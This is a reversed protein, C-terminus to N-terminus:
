FSISTQFVPIFFNTYDEQLMRKQHLFEQFKANEELPPYPIGCVTVHDCTWFVDWAQKRISTLFA